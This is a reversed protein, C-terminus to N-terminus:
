SYGPQDADEEPTFKEEKKPWSQGGFGYPDLMMWTLLGM